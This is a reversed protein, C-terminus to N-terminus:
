PTNGLASEPIYFKLIASMGSDLVRFTYIHEGPPVEIYFHDGRSLSKEAYPEAYVAVDSLVTNLLFTNKLSDDEYVQTRYKKDGNMTLDYELRSLVKVTAPGIISLKLSDQAGVRYYDYQKEKVLIKVMNTYEQPNMAVRKPKESLKSNKKLVRVYIERKDRKDLYLKIKHKGNPLDIIINGGMGIDGEGSQSLEIGKSIEASRTYHTKKGDIVSYITYDVKDDKEYGKMNLRTIIKLKVPGDIVTELPNKLDLKYYTWDKGKIRIKVMKGHKDPMLFSFQSKAWVPCILAIITLITITKRM